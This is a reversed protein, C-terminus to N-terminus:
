SARDSQPGGAGVEGCRRVGSAVEVLRMENVIEAPCGAARWVGEEALSCRFLFASNKWNAAVDRRYASTHISEGAAADRCFGPRTQYQYKDGKERLDAQRGAGEGNGVLWSGGHFREDDDEALAGIREGVGIFLAPGLFCDHPGPTLVVGAVLEIGTNERRFARMVSRLVGGGRWGIRPGDGCKQKELRAIQALGGLHSLRM